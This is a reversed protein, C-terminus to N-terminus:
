VLAERPRRAGPTAAPQVETLAIHVNPGKRWDMPLSACNFKLWEWWNIWCQLACCVAESCSGSRETAAQRGVVALRRWAWHCCRGDGTLAM